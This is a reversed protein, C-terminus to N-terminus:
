REDYTMEAVDPRTAIEGLLRDLPVQADTKLSVAIEIAEGSSDVQLNRVNVGAMDNLADVVGSPEVGPQLRFSVTEIRRGFRRRVWARFPRFGTLSVLAAITVAVAAWYYGLGVALGIAAAVWMSAATTLGRISAGYKLIAGGGLFGVGVVVQSAVRTVDIQVDTSNRTAEFPAFAHISILGFLAAGLCVLIHTRFGAPQNDIERELGLAAGLGVALLVRLVMISNDLQLLEAKM